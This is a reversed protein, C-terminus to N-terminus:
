SDPGEVWLTYVILSGPHSVLVLLASFLSVKELLCWCHYLALLGYKLLCTQSLDMLKISYLYLHCIIYGPCCFSSICCTSSSLAQLLILLKSWYSVHTDVICSGLSTGLLNWAVSTTAVERPDALSSLKATALWSTCGLASIKYVSHIFGGNKELM